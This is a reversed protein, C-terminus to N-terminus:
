VSGRNVYVGKLTVSDQLKGAAAGAQRLSVIRDMTDCALKGMESFPRDLYDYKEALHEPLNAYHRYVAVCIDSPIRLKLEGVACDFYPIIDQSGLLLLKKGAAGNRRLLSLISPLYETGKEMVRRELSLAGAFRSKGLLEWTRQSELGEGGLMIVAGVGSSKAQGLLADFSAM